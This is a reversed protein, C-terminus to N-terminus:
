SQTIKSILGERVVTIRDSIQSKVLESHDVIILKKNTNANKLVELVMEVNAIDLGGFPEDLIYFNAGIGTRSEIFDLVALDVSIDTSAREGGSLTKIPISEEGDIHILANVEEKVKGEKTEKTGDLQITATQMNPINRIMKTANESIVELAEDFSCSLYSKIAKKLEEAIRLQQNLEKLQNSIEQQKIKYTEYQATLRTLSVEYRLRAEDYNKLNMTATEFARRHIDWQGRVQELAKSSIERLTKYNKDFEDQKTKNIKAQNEEHQQKKLKEEELFKKTKTELERLGIEELTMEPEPKSVLTSLENQLTDLETIAQEGILVISRLNGIKELLKSEEMKITDTLWSQECRPCENKRIKQIENALKLAEEKANKGKQITNNLESKRLKLTGITQQEAMEKDKKALELENFNKQIDKLYSERKEIISSDFPVYELKPKNLDIFEEEERKHTSQINELEAKFGDAKTKLELVLNQDIDKIPASGLATIADQSANLGTNTSELSSTLSTITKSLDTIKVDLNVIHNKFKSLGLCDTLFNNMESPMFNLFFGKEGQAKHMMSHFLHRPIGIIQDLKEEALKSSGTTTEGNLIIKLKKNRTITLPQGDLDFEGEVFLPEDILRSQLMSNPISNLGFLYDLANFITSKGSGSSGGTNSNQGDIQILNSLNDFCIEQLDIFRGINKLRLTKLKIM